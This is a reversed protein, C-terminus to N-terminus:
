HQPRQDRRRVLLDSWVNFVGALVGLVVAVIVAHAIATGILWLVLFSIILCAVGTYIGRRAIHSNSKMTRM